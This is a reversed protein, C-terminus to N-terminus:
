ICLMEELHVNIYGRSPYENSEYEYCYLTLMNGTDQLVDYVICLDFYHLNCTKLLAMLPYDTIGIPVKSGTSQVSPILVNKFESRRELVNGTQQIDVLYRKFHHAHKSETFCILHTKSQQQEKDIHIGYLTGRASICKMKADYYNKPISGYSKFQIM